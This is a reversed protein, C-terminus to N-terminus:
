GGIRVGVGEGRRRDPCLRLEGTTRVRPLLRLYRFNSWRQSSGAEAALRVPQLWAVLDYPGGM